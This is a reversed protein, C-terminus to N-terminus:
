GGPGIIEGITDQAIMIITIRPAHQSVGDRSTTISGAMEGLIHLRGDKAQALATKMIDYTNTTIKNDM